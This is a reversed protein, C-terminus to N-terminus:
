SLRAYMKWPVMSTAEILIQSRSGARHDVPCPRTSVRHGSLARAASRARVKKRPDAKHGYRESM